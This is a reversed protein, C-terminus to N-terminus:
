YFGYYIKVSVNVEYPYLPPPYIWSLTGAALSINPYIYTLELPFTTQKAFFLGEGALTAPVNISGNVGKTDVSGVLTGVRTSTDLVLSGAADWIQLGAVM